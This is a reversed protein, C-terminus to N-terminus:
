RAALTQDLQPWRKPTMGPPLFFVSNTWVGKNSKGNADKGSWALYREPQTRIDRGQPAGNDVIIFGNYGGVFYIHGPSTAKQTAM